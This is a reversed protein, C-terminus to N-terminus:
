TNPARTGLVSHGATLDGVAVKTQFLLGAKDAVSMRTMLDTVRDERNVTPDRYRLPESPASPTTM